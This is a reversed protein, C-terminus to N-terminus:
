VGDVRREGERELRTGVDRRTEDQSDDRGRKEDRRGDEGGEDRRVLDRREHRAMGEDSMVLYSGSETMVM